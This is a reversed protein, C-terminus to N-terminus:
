EEGTIARQCIICYERVISTGNNDTEVAGILVTALEEDESYRIDTTIIEINAVEHGRYAVLFAPSTEPSVATFWLTAESCDANVRILEEVTLDNYEETYGTCIPANLREISCMWARENLLRVKSRQKKTTEIWNLGVQNEINIGILKDVCEDFDDINKITKESM